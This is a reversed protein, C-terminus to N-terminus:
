GRISVGGGGGGGGLAFSRRLANRPCAVAVVM